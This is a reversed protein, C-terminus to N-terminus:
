PTAEPARKGRTEVNRAVRVRQSVDQGVDGMRCALLDHGEMPDHDPDFWRLKMRCLQKPIAMFQYGCDRLFRIVPHQSPHVDIHKFEFLVCDPPMTRFLNTAGWLVESEFGEVDIKMLRIHDISDPLVDDLRAVHVTMSDSDMGDFERVLSARDSYGTPITLRMSSAHEGLAYECVSINDVNNYETSQRLLEALEPNPEVALVTGSPGVLGSLHFTILGSNAGIDIVADGPRVIRSCIWTLKRDVDGAYYIMRGSHEDLRVYTRLGNRLRALVLGRNNHGAIMRM